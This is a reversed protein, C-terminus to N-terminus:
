YYNLSTELSMSLIRVMAILPMLETALQVFATQLALNTKALLLLIVHILIVSTLKQSCFTLFM